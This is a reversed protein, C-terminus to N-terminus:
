LNIHNKQYNEPRVFIKLTTRQLVRLFGTSRFLLQVKQSYQAVLDSMSSCHPNIYYQIQLKPCPATRNLSPSQLQIEFQIAINQTKFFLYAHTQFQRNVPRGHGKFSLWLLPCSGMPDWIDRAVKFMCHFPYKKEAFM